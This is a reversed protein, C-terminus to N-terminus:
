VEKFTAQYSTHVVQFTSGENTESIEKVAYYLNSSCIFIM